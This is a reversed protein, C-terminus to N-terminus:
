IYLPRVVIKVGSYDANLINHYALLLPENSTVPLHLQRSIGISIYGRLLDASNPPMQLTQPSM